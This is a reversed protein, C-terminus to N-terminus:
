FLFFFVEEKGHKVRNKVRLADTGGKWRAGM